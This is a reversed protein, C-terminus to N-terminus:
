SCFVDEIDAGHCRAHITQHPQPSLSRRSGCPLPLRPRGMGGLRSWVNSVCYKSIREVIRRRFRSERPTRDDRVHGSRQAKAHCGMGALLQCVCQFSFCFACSRCYKAINEPERTPSPRRHPRTSFVHFQFSIPIKSIQDPNPHNITGRPSM